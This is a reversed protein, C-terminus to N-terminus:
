DEDNLHKIHFPSPSTMMRIFDYVEFTVNHSVDTMSLCNKLFDDAILLDNKSLKDKHKKKVFLKKESLYSYMKQLIEELCIITAVDVGLFKSFKVNKIFVKTNKFDDRTLYFYLEDDFCFDTWM